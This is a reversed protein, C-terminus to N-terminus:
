DETGFNGKKLCHPCLGNFILDRRHVEYGLSEVPEDLTQDMSIDLDYLNGCCTCFFHPHDQTTADYRNVTSPISIARGEEVLFNLNRYVTGLSLSPYSPKLEKYIMEASPHEKTSALADYILERQKSYRSEGM